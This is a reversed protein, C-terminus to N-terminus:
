TWWYSQFGKLYNGSVKFLYLADDSSKCLVLVIVGGVNNVSHHGKFFKQFNSIKDRLQESVRQSIKM